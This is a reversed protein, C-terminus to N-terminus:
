QEARLVLVEFERPELILALGYRRLELQIKEVTPYDMTNGSFALDINGKYGTEDLCPQETIREITNIFWTSLFDYDANQLRRIESLPPRRVSTSVFTYVAGGGQTALRDVTDLRTLVWCNLIRKEIQAHLGFYRKFDAKVYSFLNLSDSPPVRCQYFFTYDDLWNLLSQGSLFEPQAYLGPSTTVLLTRGGRFPDFDIMGLDRFAHQYMQQVSGSITYENTTKPKELRFGKSSNRRVLYSAHAIEDDYATDLMTKLYKTRSATTPIGTENGSIALEVKEPTLYAGSALHLITGEPSIWVHYPDGVHPFLNSLVTDGTIFPIDPRHVNTFRNFFDVTEQYGEKGVAIIQVQGRYAKQLSDVKPFAKLCAICRTNWFDLIVLKGRLDSMKLTDSTHNYIGTLVLDPMKEGIRLGTSLTTQQAIANSALVVFLILFAIRKM